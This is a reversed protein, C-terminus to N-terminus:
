LYTEPVPGLVEMHNREAIRDLLEATATGAAEAAALEEFFGVMSAPTFLNLKKGAEASTVKFTHPSGCPIYVFSGAPCLAQKDEFFMLYEGQLVFFAEAADHHRHLPPGFGPPENQTKLLTFEGLTQESSALVEAQFNGLDLLRGEDPRVIFAAAM